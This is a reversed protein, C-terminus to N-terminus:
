CSFYNVCKQLIRMRIGWCWVMTLLWWQERVKVYLRSCSPVVVSLFFLPPFIEAGVLLEYSTAETQFILM